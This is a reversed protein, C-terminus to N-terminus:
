VIEEDEDKDVSETLVRSNSINIRSGLSKLTSTIDSTMRSQQTIKRNIFNEFFEDDEVEYFDESDESLPNGLSKLARGLGKSDYPDGSNSGRKTDISTMKLFDPFLGRDGTATLTNKVRRRRNRRERERPTYQHSEEKENEEKDKESDKDSDESILASYKKINNQARIPATEDTLSFKVINDPEDDTEDLSAPYASLTSGGALVPLSRTNV